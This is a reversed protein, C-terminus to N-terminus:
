DDLPVHARGCVGDLGQPGLARWLIRGPDASGPLTVTGRPVAEFGQPGFLFLDGVLLVFREGAEAGAQVAHGVLGAAVGHKRWAPDVAIPGLYLGRTEGVMVPWLRVAGIVEEGAAAVFSLDMRQRNGERLRESVKAYRGPGFARNILADVARAQDAREPAITLSLTPRWLKAL